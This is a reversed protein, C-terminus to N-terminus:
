ALQPEPEDDAVDRQSLKWSWFGGLALLAAAVIGFIIWTSGGAGNGDRSGYVFSIAGNVLHGDEEALYRVIYEGERDLPAFSLRASTDGLRVTSTGDIDENDPGVLALEVGGVPAGFEITVESIPDDFQSQHEPVSSEIEDHASAMAGFGTLAALITALAVVLRVRKSEILGQMVVM